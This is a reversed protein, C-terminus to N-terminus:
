ILGKDGCTQLCEDIACQGDAVAGRKGGSAQAVEYTFAAGDDNLSDARIDVYSRCESTLVASYSPYALGLNWFCTPAPAGDPKLNLLFLNM